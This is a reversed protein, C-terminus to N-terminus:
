DSIRFKDLLDALNRSLSGFPDLIPNDQLGFVNKIITLITYVGIIILMGILAATLTQQSAQLAKPDGQSLAYKIASIFVFIVFIAGASIVLVNLLRVVPCLIAMPSPAKEWTTSELEGCRSQYDSNVAASATRNAGLLLTVSFIILTLKRFTQHPM